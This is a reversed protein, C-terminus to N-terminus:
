FPFPRNFVAGGKTCICCIGEDERLPHRYKQASFVRHETLDGRIILLLFVCFRLVQVFFHTIQSTLTATSM